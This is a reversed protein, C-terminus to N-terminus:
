DESEDDPAGFVSDQCRQCMKSITYEKESLKDRFEDPKIKAGCTACNGAEVNKVCQGFGCAIVIDKNM